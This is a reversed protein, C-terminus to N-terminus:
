KIAKEVMCSRDFLFGARTYNKRYSFYDKSRSLYRISAKESFLYDNREQGSREPKFSWCLRGSERNM